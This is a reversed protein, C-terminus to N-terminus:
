AESLNMNFGKIILWVALFIENLILPLVLFNLGSFGIGLFPAITILFLLLTAVIGWVSIFRPIIQTLYLLFYFLLAGIMFFYIHIYTYITERYHELAPSLILLGGIIMLIGEIVKSAIYAYNLKKHSTQFLPFMLIAIAVVALGSIIDTIVGLTANKTLTYTLMGYAAIMLIGVLAARLRNSISFM